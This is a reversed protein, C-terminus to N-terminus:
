CSRRDSALRQAVAREVIEDLHRADDTAPGEDPGIDFFSLRGDPPPGPLAREIAARTFEAISIGRRRAEVRLRVGLEDPLVVTTRM